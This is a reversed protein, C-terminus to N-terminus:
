FRTLAACRSRSSLRLSKAWVLANSASPVGAGQEIRFHV